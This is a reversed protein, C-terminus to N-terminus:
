PTSKLMKTTSIHPNHPLVVIVQGGILAMLERKNVLFPTSASVALIDPRLAQILKKYDQPRDFKKPLSFVQNAIGLQRLNKLRTQLKNVPRNPGKLQRVRTDTELGVLLQGGLNKAATLFKWHESHLVDFCGTVLIVKDTLSEGESRLPSDKSIRQQYKALIIEGTPRPHFFAFHRSVKETTIKPKMYSYQLHFFFSNLKDLLSEGESRLPSDKSFLSLGQLANPLFRAVWKNSALFRQYLNDRVFLPKAQCIEHATYLNQSKIKLSTEDLWLNLCLKDAVKSSDTRGGRLHFFLLITLFFRTLWLRNKATIIMLDLDDNKDANNMSLAGTVAVLKVWPILWFIWKLRQLKQWKLQSFHLRQRRLAVLHSQGPLHYFGRTFVIPNSGKPSNKGNPDFGPSILWRHMEEDTLPYDFIDAYAIASFNM